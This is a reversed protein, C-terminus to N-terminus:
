AVNRIGIASLAALAATITGMAYLLIRSKPIRDSLSVLVFPLIPISFRVFEARAWQPSNYTFLFTSYLIAFLGEAPHERFFDRFRSRTMALVGVLILIIWGSTFILNTWPSNSHLLSEGIAHFPFGVPSGSQWDNARYRHVQFLPDGTYIWFPLLYLTGIALSLGVCLFLKRYDRRSLLTFGLAILALIGVPRTVTAFSALASALIWHERRAAWFAGVLLAMFFPEAGGLHSVQLWALNLVAFFGAM